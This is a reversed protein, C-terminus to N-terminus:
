VAYKWIQKKQLATIGMYVFLLIVHLGFFYLYLKHKVEQIKQQKQVKYEEIQEDSYLKNMYIESLRVQPNENVIKEVQENINIFSNIAGFFSFVVAIIMMNRALFPVEGYAISKKRFTFALAAEWIIFLLIAQFIITILGLVIMSETDISKVILTKIITLVLGFIIDFLIFGGLLEGTLSKATEVKQEGM